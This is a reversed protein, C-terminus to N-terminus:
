GLMRKAQVDQTNRMADVLGASDIATSRYRDLLKACLDEAEKARSVYGALSYILRTDAEAKLMILSDFEDPSPFFNTPSITLSYYTNPNVHYSLFFNAAGVISFATAPNVAFEYAAGSTPPNVSYYTWASYVGTTSLIHPTFVSERRFEDAPMYPIQLGSAPDILIAESGAQFDNPMPGTSPSTTCGITTNALDWKFPGQQEIWMFAENLRDEWFTDSFGFPMKLNLRRVMETTSYTTSV